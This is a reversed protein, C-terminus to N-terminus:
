ARANDSSAPRRENQEQLPLMPTGEAIARPTGASRKDRFLHRPRGEARPPQRPRLLANRFVEIEADFDESRAFMHTGGDTWEHSPLLAAHPASNRPFQDIKTAMAGPAGKTRYPLDGLRDHDRTDFRPCRCRCYVRLRSLSAAHFTASAREVVAWGETVILLGRAV